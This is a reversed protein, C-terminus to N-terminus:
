IMVFNFELKGTVYLKIQIMYRLKNRKYGQCEYIGGNHLAVDPILLKDSRIIFNDPLPGDNYTWTSEFVSGCM